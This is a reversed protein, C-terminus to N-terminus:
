AHAAQLVTRSPNILVGTITPLHRDWFAPDELLARWSPPADDVPPAPAPRKPSSPPLAPSCVAPASREFSRPFSPHLLTPDLSRRDGSSPPSARASQRRRTVLNSRGDSGVRCSPELTSALGPLVRWTEENM